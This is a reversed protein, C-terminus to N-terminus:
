HTPKTKTVEAEREIGPVPLCILVGIEPRSGALPKFRKGPPFTIVPWRPFDFLIVGGPACRLPAWVGQYM